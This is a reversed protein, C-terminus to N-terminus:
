HQLSVKACVLQHDGLSFRELACDLVLPLRNPDREQAASISERLLVQEVTEATYSNTNCIRNEHVARKILEDRELSLCRVNVRRKQACHAFASVNQHRCQRKGASGDLVCGPAAHKVDFTCRRSHTQQGLEKASAGTNESTNMWGVADCNASGSRFVKNRLM